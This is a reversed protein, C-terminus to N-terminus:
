NFSADIKAMLENKTEVIWENPVESKPIQTWKRCRAMRQYCTVSWYCKDDSSLMSISLAIQVRISSGDTQKYIKEAKM